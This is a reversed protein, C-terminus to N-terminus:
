FIVLIYEQLLLIIQKLTFNAFYVNKILILCCSNSEIKQGVMLLVMRIKQILDYM